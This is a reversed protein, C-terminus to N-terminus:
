HRSVPSARARGSATFWHEPPGGPVHFATGRDFRRETPGHLTVDGSLVFGWAANETPRELATGASGAAPVEVSVFAVPGLIAFRTLLGDARIGRLERPRFACPSDAEQRSHRVDAESHRRTYRLSGPGYLRM